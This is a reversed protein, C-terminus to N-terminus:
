ADAEGRVGPPSEPPENQGVQGAITSRRRDRSVSIAGLGPKVLLNGDATEGVLGEGRRRLNPVEADDGVDVVALGRQRIPHQLEGTDHRVPIHAGLVEVPHVDLALTADGDLGLVHPQGPVEVAGVIDQVQDVSRAVDVEGILHGARQLGAFARHQQDVGRLADLSLRQGVQVEREVAVQVDDRHEVLDVQGSGVGLAVGGLDGVDDAALGAIDQPYRALRPLADGVQEIVHHALHRSWGAVGVRGRPCHNEVGDVVDVPTHHRVHAHHVAFDRRALLDRHHGGPGGVLQQFHADDRRFRLRRDAEADALHAVEDGAHLIDALRLDAVGDGAGPM